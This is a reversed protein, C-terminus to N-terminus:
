PVVTLPATVSVVTADSPSGLQGRVLPQRVLRLHVDYAGPPLAALEVARPLLQPSASAPVRLTRENATPPSLWRREPADEGRATLYAVLYADEGLGQVRVLMKGARQCAAGAPATCVIEVLPGGAGKVRVDDHGRGVFLAVAAAAAAPAFLALRIGWSRRRGGPVGPHRLIEGLLRERARGSLRGRALLRETRARRDGIM